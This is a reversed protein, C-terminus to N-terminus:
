GVRTPCGSSEADLRVGLADGAGVALGVAFGAVKSRRPSRPSIPSELPGLVGDVVCFPGGGATGPFRGVAGIASGVSSGESAGTADVMGVFGACGAGPAPSKSRSKLAGVGVEAVCFGLVLVFSIRERNELVNAGGAYECGEM